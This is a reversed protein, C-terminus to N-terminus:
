EEEGDWNLDTLERQVDKYNKHMPCEPPPGEEQYLKGKEHWYGELRYPGFKMEDAMNVYKPSINWEEVTRIDQHSTHRSKNNVGQKESHLQYTATWTERKYPIIQCLATGKPITFNHDVKSYFIMQANDQNVNFTDTDIIGQWVSFFKNSQLFPDLFLTSYGPPTIINWPNRLKFADKVKGLMGPPQYDHFQQNPHNPSAIRKTSHPKTKVKFNTDPVGDNNGNIVEIDHQTVIMWGSKMWDDMAPCARISQTTAGQRDIYVRAKKWWEPQMKKALVPKFSRVSDENHAIFDITPM